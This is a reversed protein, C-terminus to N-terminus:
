SCSLFLVAVLDVHGVVALEDAEVAVLLGHVAELRAVDDDEGRRRGEAPHMEAVRDLLAEIGEHLLRDGDVARGGALHEGQALLRLLLVELDADAQHAAVALGACSSNLRILSPSIPSM